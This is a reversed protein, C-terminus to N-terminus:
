VSPRPHESNLAVLAAGSGKPEALGRLRHRAFVEDLEERTLTERELATRALDDVCERNAALLARAQRHAEQALSQAALDVERRTSDSIAYNGIPMAIPAPGDGDLAVGMGFETVMASCLQQVRALDNAAGSFSEGIFTEEAARGGLLSVVEALLEERSKM